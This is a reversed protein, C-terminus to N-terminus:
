ASGSGTGFGGQNVHVQKHYLDPNDMLNVFGIMVRYSGSEDPSQDKCCDRLM